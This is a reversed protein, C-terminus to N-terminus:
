DLRSGIFNPYSGLISTAPQPKKGSFQVQLPQLLGRECTIVWSDHHQLITGPVDKTPEDLALASLIKLETNKWTTWVGPWPQYARIKREILKADKWEARGDARNLRPALSFGKVPQAEARVKKTIWSEILDAVSEAAMASLIMELSPRSAHEDIPCPIQHIIPGTDCGADMQMLTIGTKTDGNLIAASIPSAGRYLPLLSAHINLCGHIPLDLVVAPLILGYSAVLYIDASFAGLYDQVAPTKLTTPTYVPLAHSTAWTTVPTPTIIQHRGTPKAPQSVVCLIEFRSDQFIKEFSPIGFSSTGFILLRYKM